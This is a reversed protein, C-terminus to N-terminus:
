LSFDSCRVVGNEDRDIYTVEMSSDLPLNFTTKWERAGGPSLGPPQDRYPDPVVINGQKPLHFKIIACGYQECEQQAQSSLGFRRAFQEPLMIGELSEQDTFFFGQSSLSTLRPPPFKLGKGRLALYERWQKHMYEWWIRGAILRYGVEPPSDRPSLIHWEDAVGGFAPPTRVGKRSTPVSELVKDKVLLLLEYMDRQRDTSEEMNDRIQTLQM